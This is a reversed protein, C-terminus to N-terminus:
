TREIIVRTSDPLGSDFRIQRVDLVYSLPSTSLTLDLRMERHILQEVLPVGEFLAGLEKKVSERSRHVEVRAHKPKSSLFQEHGPHEPARVREIGTDKLGGRLRKTKRRAPM